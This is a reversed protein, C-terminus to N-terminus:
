WLNRQKNEFMAEIAEKYISKAIKYNEKNINAFHDMMVGSNIELVKYTDNTEIIDISAFKLNLTKSVKIALNSLITKIEKDELLQSKSGLGLNHKWNLKIIENHKPIDYYNIHKDIENISYKKNSDAILKLISDKGNGILFPIEKLYILKVKNNLIIVRYENNIEYFPSLALSINEKFIENAAEELEKENSVLTVCNGGTGENPKCVIQKHQKLYNLMESLNGTNNIYKLNPPSIFFTHEVCPIHNSIMIDSAASKDNCIDDVSSSNLEFRYGLIHKSIHDKSLRFIWNDSYSEININEEKCIEKIMKTFKRENNKM